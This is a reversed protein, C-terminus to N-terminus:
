SNKIKEINGLVEQKLEPSEREVFDLIEPTRMAFLALYETKVFGRYSCKAILEWCDCEPALEPKTKLIQIWTHAYNARNEDFKQSFLPKKYLELWDFDSFDDFKDCKEELEPNGGLIEIWEKVSM